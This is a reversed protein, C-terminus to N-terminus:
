PAVATREGALFAALGTEFDMSSPVFLLTGDLAVYVKGGGRTRQIVCIGAGQPLKVVESPTGPSARHLYETGIRTLVDARSEPRRQTSEM